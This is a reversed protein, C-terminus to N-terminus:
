FFASHSLDASMLRCISQHLVDSCRAGVIQLSFPPCNSGELPGCPLAMVPAGYVNFGCTEYIMAHLVSLGQGGIKVTKEGIRPPACPLTPVVLVDVRTFIDVFSRKIQELRCLAREVQGATIQRASRQAQIAAAGLEACESETLGQYVHLSEALTIIGHTEIVVDREPLEVPILDYGSAALSQVVREIAASIQESRLVAPSVEFGVRIRSRDPLDRREDRSGLLVRVSRLLLQATKALLGVHDFSPALPWVGSLSVAGYSPKYAFLGTCAAPIRLSGATDTGLAIDAQDAAIVAAAGGSSGGVIIEPNTPNVVGPTTIGFGGADTCTMGVIRAGAALLCKVAPATQEARRESFLPHGATYRLGSVQINDKIALRVDRLVGTKDTVFTHREVFGNAATISSM